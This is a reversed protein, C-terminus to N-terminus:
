PAHREKYITPTQCQWEVLIEGQGKLGKKGQGLPANAILIYWEFGHTGRLWDNLVKVSDDIANDDVHIGGFAIDILGYDM